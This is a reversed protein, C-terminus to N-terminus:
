PGSKRELFGGPAMAMLSLQAKQQQQLLQDALGVSMMRHMLASAPEEIRASPVTLIDLLKERLEDQLTTPISEPPDAFPPKVHQAFKDLIAEDGSINVYSMLLTHIEGEQVAQRLEPTDSLPLLREGLRFSKESKTPVVDIM